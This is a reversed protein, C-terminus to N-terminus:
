PSVVDADRVILRPCSVMCYSILTRHFASPYGAYDAACVSVLECYSLHAVTQGRYVHASFQPPSQQAGKRPPAPYGDLVIDGPGLGVETGLQMKIWEVM